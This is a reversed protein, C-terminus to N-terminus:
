LAKSVAWPFWGRMLRIPEGYSLAVASLNMLVRFAEILVALFAFEKLLCTPRENGRLHPKPASRHLSKM